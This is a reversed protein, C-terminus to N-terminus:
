SRPCSITCCAICCRLVDVHQPRLSPRPLTAVLSMDSLTVLLACGLKKMMMM